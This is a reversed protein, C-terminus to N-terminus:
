CRAGQSSPLIRRPSLGESSILGRRFYIFVSYLFFRIKVQQCIKGLYQVTVPKPIIPPINTPPANQLNATLPPTGATQFITVYSTSDGHPAFQYHLTLPYGSNFTFELSTPVKSNGHEGHKPYIMPRSNPQM